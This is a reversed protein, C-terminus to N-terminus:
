GPGTGTVLYSYAVTAPLANTRLRLVSSWPYRSHWDWNQAIIPEGARTAEGTAGFATCHPLRGLEESLLLLM